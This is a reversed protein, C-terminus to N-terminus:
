GDPDPDPLERRRARDPGARGVHRCLQRHRDRGAGLTAYWPREVDALQGGLWGALSVTGVIVALALLRTLWKMALVVLLPLSWTRQRMVAILVRFLNHSDRTPRFLQALRFEEATADGPRLQSLFSIVDTLGVFGRRVGGDVGLAASTGANSFRAQESRGLEAAATLAAAIAGASAGGVNRFRFKTALECVALPYVVGSTTGGQMTLDLSSELYAQVRGANAPTLDSLVSPASAIMRTTADDADPFQYRSEDGYGGIVTDQDCLVSDPCAAMEAPLYKQALLTQTKVPKSNILTDLACLAAHGHAVAV